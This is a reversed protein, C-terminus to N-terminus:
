RIVCGIYWAVLDYMCTGGTGIGLFLLVEMNYVLSTRYIQFLMDTDLLQTTVSVTILVSHVNYFFRIDM